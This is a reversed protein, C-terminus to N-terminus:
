FFEDPAEKDDEFPDRDPDEEDDDDLWAGNWTCELKTVYNDLDFVIYGYSGDNNFTVHQSADLVSFMYSKIIPDDPPYQYKPPDTTQKYDKGHMTSDWNDFKSTIDNGAADLMEPSDFYDFDDGAGTYYITLISVGPYLRKIHEYTQQKTAKIEYSM